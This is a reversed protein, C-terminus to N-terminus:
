FDDRIRRNKYHEKVDNAGKNELNKAVFNKTGSHNPFAPHYRSDGSSYSYIRGDYLQKSSGVGLSNGASSCNDM